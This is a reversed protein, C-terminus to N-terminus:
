APFRENRIEKRLATLLSEVQYLEMCKTQYLAEARDEEPLDSPLFARRERVAEQIAEFMRINHKRLEGAAYYYGPGCWYNRNLAAVVSVAGGYSTRNARKWAIAEAEDLDIRRKRSLRCLIDHIRESQTLAVFRPTVRLPGRRYHWTEYFSGSM